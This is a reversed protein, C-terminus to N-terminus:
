IRKYVRKEIYKVHKVAGATGADVIDWESCDNWQGGFEQYLCQSPDDHLVKCHNCVWGMSARPNVGYWTEAVLDMVAVKRATYYNRQEQPTSGAPPLMEELVRNTDAITQQYEALIEERSRGKPKRPKPATPKPQEAPKLGVKAMLAKLRLEGETPEKPAEEETAEEDATQLEAQLEAIRQLLRVTEKVTPDKRAKEVAVRAARTLPQGCQRCFSRYNRIHCDRCEVGDAPMGCEPCDIDDPGMPAGCFTCYDVLKGGCVPCLEMDAEVAAGCHPCVGGAETQRTQSASQSQNATTSKAALRERSRAQNNQETTM